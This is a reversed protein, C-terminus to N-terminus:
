RRCPGDDGLQERLAARGETIRRNVATYTAGTLRMIESYSYGLGKLYRADCERPKLARIAQVRAHHEIRDLALDDTGRRDPDCPEPLEGPAASPDAPTTLTGAPQERAISGLRWAEHVAVTSLWSLGRADLAIDPRRLLTVWAIQCADEIVEDGVRDVRRRVARELREAHDHYFAAIQEDRRQRTATMAEGEQTSPTIRAKLPTATRTDLREGSPLLSVQRRACRSL